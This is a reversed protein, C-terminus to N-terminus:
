SGGSEGAHGPDLARLLQQPLVAGGEAAPRLLAEGPNDPGTAPRLLRDGGREGVRDSLASLCEAAAARIRGDTVSRQPRDALREVFPISREGGIQELARLIAVVLDADQSSLARHLCDMQRESLMGADSAHVRPLLRKLGDRAAQLTYHDQLELAEALPGIVRADEFSALIRAAQLQLGTPRTVFLLSVSVALLVIYLLPFRLALDGTGALGLLGIATCAASFVAIAYNRRDRRVAEREILNLLPAVARIGLQDMTRRAEIRRRSDRSALGRLVPAIDIQDAGEMAEGRGLRPAVFMRARVLEKELLDTYRALAAEHERRARDAREQAHELAAQAEEQEARTREVASRLEERLNM